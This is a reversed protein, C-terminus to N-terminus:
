SDYAPKKSVVEEQLTVFPERTHFVIAGDGHDKPEPRRTREVCSISFGRYIM